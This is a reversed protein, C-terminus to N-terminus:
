ETDARDRKSMMRRVSRRATRLYHAAELWRSEDESYKRCGDAEQEARRVLRYLDCDFEDARKEMNRRM